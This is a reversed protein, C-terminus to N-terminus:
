WRSWQDLHVRQGKALLLLAGAGLTSLAAGKLVCRWRLKPSVEPVDCCDEAQAMQCLLNRLVTVEQQLDKTQILLQGCASQAEGNPDLSFVLQSARRPFRSVVDHIAETLYSCQQRVSLLFMHLEESGACAGGLENVTELDVKDLEMQRVATLVKQQDKPETIGIKHLDDKDMNLLHSWSIDHDTIIDTLYDLGLGHFLLEMEDLKNACDRSEESFFPIVCSNQSSSCALIRLIQAHKFQTALDAATRGLKTKLNKDAGLQLLKLVAEERGYQVAFCLATFGNLDQANVNAGHSVLLNIVKPFGDRSALMLCTMHSRDVMNPDANRSLLLEMCSCIKDEPASAACCAMLVTWHDKSFNASAGRDLLIKTFNYNAVNVACMLPTWEFDLRTDVHLGNDLLQEVTEVQGKSIAWKLLSVQNDEAPAVDVQKEKTTQPKRDAFGLDWEDSSVESEEGAPFAFEISCM